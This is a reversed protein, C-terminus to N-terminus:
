RQGGKLLGHIWQELESMEDSHVHYFREVGDKGISWKRLGKSDESIEYRITMEEM